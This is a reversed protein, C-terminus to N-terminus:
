PELMVIFWNVESPSNRKHWFLLFTSMSGAITHHVFSRLIAALITFVRYLRLHHFDAAATFMWGTFTLRQKANRCFLNLERASIGADLEGKTGLLM